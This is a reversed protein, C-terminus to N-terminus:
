LNKCYLRQEFYRRRVSVVACFLIIEFDLNYHNGPVCAVITSVTISSPEDSKPTEKPTIRVTQSPEYSPFTLKVTKEGKENPEQLVTEETKLPEDPKGNEGVKEVVLKEGNQVRVIVSQIQVPKGEFTKEKPTITVGRGEKKVDFNEVPTEGGDTMTKTCQSESFLM